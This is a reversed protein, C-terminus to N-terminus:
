VLSKSASINLSFANNKIYISKNTSDLVEITYMGIQMTKTTAYPIVCLYVNTDQKTCQLKSITTVAEINPYIYVSVNFDINDLNITDNGRITININEGQLAM